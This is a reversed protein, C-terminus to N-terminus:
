IRPEATPEPGHPVKLTGATWDRLLIRLGPSPPSPTRGFTPAFCSTIVAEVDPLTPRARGQRELEVALSTVEADHLGCPVILSFDDLDNVVNIAFGHTTVWRGVKVGIAAIKRRGDATWVGTRGQVRRTAVGMRACAAILMEEILRLFVLLDRNWADLSVIPYGVLQGPGHLTVNGGRDTPEVVVGRAALEASTVVINERGRGTFGHTIPPPHELLLLVDGVRGEARAAAIARQLGWTNAYPSLGPLRVVEIPPAPVVM